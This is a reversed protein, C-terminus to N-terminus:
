PTIVVKMAAGREAADLGKAFDALGFRHTILPLFDAKGSAMLALAETTEAETAGYSPVLSVERNYVDSLDYDLRSGEFPIGFLCVTGGKRVSKLAQVLAKPSGSAVVVSDAGVGGTLKAMAGPVDEASADLVTGAFPKAFELRRPAVDSVVTKAGAKSLLIAHMLGVPGAGVVLVTDGSKVRTRGIARICCAVPEIMAAHEFGVHAPLRLVGGRKVNDAPVRFYESFGGPDLNSRRYDPCMTESGSTCLRCSGCSVHHHPFVRDGVRFDAVGKGAEAVVGAAEHGLVPMAATYEGRIKEIDTGCLGCAKMEVVLEGEAAKPRPGEVTDM